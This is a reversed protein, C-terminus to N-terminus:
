AALLDTLQRILEGTPASASGSGSVTLESAIQDGPREPAANIAAIGPAPPQTPPLMNGVCSGAPPRWSDHSTHCTVTLFCAFLNVQKAKRTLV